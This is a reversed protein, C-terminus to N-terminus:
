LSVLVMVKTKHLNMKLNWLDCYQTLKNKLRELEMRTDAFVVLDDAYLLAFPKELEIKIGHGGSSLHSKLDNIFM